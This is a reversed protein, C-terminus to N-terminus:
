GAGAWLYGNRPSGLVRDWVRARRGSGAKGLEKRHFGSGVGQQLTQFLMKGVGVNGHMVVAMMVDTVCASRATGAMVGHCQDRGDKGAQAGHAPVPQHIIGDGVPHWVPDVCQADPGFCGAM